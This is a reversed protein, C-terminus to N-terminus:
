VDSAPTSFQLLRTKYARTRRQIIDMVRRAEEASVEPGLDFTTMALRHGGNVGGEQNVLNTINIRQDAITGAIQELQGPVSEHTLIGRIGPLMRQAPEISPLTHGPINQPNVIGQTAFERMRQAGELGLKRQTATDSAATHPTGMFNPHQIISRMVEDGFLKDLEEQKKEDKPENPYVDLALTLGQNMKERLAATNINKGRATNVLLAHDKMQAILTPTLVEDNGSVSLTIVDSERVLEEIPTRGDIDRSDSFLIRRFHPQSFRATAQGIRGYGIIGLTMESLDPLQKSEQKKDWKGARLSQTGHLVRGGWALMFTLARRAVPDTSAGPTNLTAIGHRSALHKDINDHGVGVRIIQMLQQHRRFVEEDIFKTTSRILIGQANEPEDIIQIGETSALEHVADAHVNDLAAIRFPQLSSDAGLDGVYHPNTQIMEDTNM